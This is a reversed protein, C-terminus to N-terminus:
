PSWNGALLAFEYFDVVGDGDYDADAADTLWHGTFEGLDYIDIANNRTFDGYPYDYWHPPEPTDAGAYAQVIAPVDFVNNFIYSYPPAFVDDYGNAPYYVHTCGHFFNYWCEILSTADKEDIPEDVYYFYNREILLQSEVGPRICYDNGSSSYYNNYLHIQGFRVRPMREYCREAWWNHHMTVHLKGRDAYDTDSAGILNVFRHSENPAPNNYYFKCWSVTVNDSETTIDIMGDCCDYVTCKYIFLNTIRDKVSIGDGEGTGVKPNTITLKEIIINNADDRFGLRGTIKPNTGIGRITKNGRISVGGGISSLNIDGSVEVIYTSTSETYSKLQAATTATVVTGGAGGTASNAFGTAALIRSTLCLLTSVTAVAWLLAKKM